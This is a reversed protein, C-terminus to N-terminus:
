FISSKQGDAQKREGENGTGADQMYGTIKVTVTGSGDTYSTSATASSQTATLTTNVTRGGVSIPTSVTEAGVEVPKAAWLLLGLTLATTGIQKWVKKKM